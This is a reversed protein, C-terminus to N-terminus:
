PLPLEGTFADRTLLCEKKQDWDSPVTMPVVRPRVPCQPCNAKLLPEYAKRYASCPFLCLRANGLLAEKM